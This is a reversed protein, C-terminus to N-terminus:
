TGLTIRHFRLFIMHTFFLKKREKDAGDIIIQVKKKKKPLIETFELVESPLVNVLSDAVTWCPFTKKLERAGLATAYVTGLGPWVIPDILFACPHERGSALASDVGDQLTGQSPCGLHVLSMASTVGRFVPLFHSAPM